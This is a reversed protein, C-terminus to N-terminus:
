NTFKFSLAMLKVIAEIRTKVENNTKTLKDIDAQTTARAGPNSSHIFLTIQYCKGDKETSYETTDYFNGAAGESYKYVTFKVAATTYITTTAALSSLSYGTATKCAGPEVTIPVAIQSITTDQYYEKPFTAVIATSTGPRAPNPQHDAIPVPQPLEITYGLEDNNYLKWDPVTRTRDIKVIPEKKKNANLVTVTILSGLILGGILAIVIGIYGGQKNNM